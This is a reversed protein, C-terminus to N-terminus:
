DTIDNLKSDVVIELCYNLGEPNTRTEKAGFDWDLEINKKKLEINLQAKDKTFVLLDINADKYECENLLNILDKVKM